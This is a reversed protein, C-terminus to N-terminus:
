TLVIGEGSSVIMSEGSLNYIKEIVSSDEFIDGSIVMYATKPDKQTFIGSVQKIENPLTILFEFKFNKISEIFQNEIQSSIKKAVESERWEQFQKKQMESKNAKEPDSKSTIVLDGNINKTIEFKSGVIDSKILKAINDFKFAYNVSLFDKKMDKNFSIFDIHVGAKEAKKLIEAKDGFMQEAFSETVKNERGGFAERMGKVIIGLTADIIYLTSKPVNIEEHFIGSGDNNITIHEKSQLCGSLLFISFFIVFDQIKNM